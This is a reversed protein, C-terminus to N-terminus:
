RLRVPLEGTLDAKRFIDSRDQPREDARWNAGKMRLEAPPIKDLPYLTAEPREQFSITHVAGNELLVDIRSCDARNVGTIEEVGDREERIFYVTRSNGEAIIRRLASDHFYGTMTTGTVQDFHSSDVQSLLFANQEVFLRHPKQDRMLIKIHDGSIQDTGTWLVPRHFMRILSDGEDYILTDCLGQMDSKFFRVGRHLQIRRGKGITSAATFLTDGHLHLSDGDMVLVLEARGTIMSHGKMEDHVGHEGRAVSAASTDRVEVAGWARGIGSTRDYHISDGALVRPGTTISSRRSFRALGKRTDYTGRTTRIVTSDQTIVTPGFFETIGTTTGYHMTDSAITREPHDLRVKGSFIFIRSASLYTGTNSTLVSNESRSRLTGGATYVARRTKLDYDLAPTTLEMNTDNMRANGELRATRQQGNYFLRDGQLKLSDGQEIVVNGFANVRQDDYLHASDCRMVANAHRFRVNGKLQQAGRNRDGDYTWTDANLIEVRAGDTTTGTQAHVLSGCCLLLCPLLLRLLPMAAPSPLPCVM